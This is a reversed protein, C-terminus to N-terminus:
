RIMIIRDEKRIIEGTVVLWAFVVRRYDWSPIHADWLVHFHVQIVVHVDQVNECPTDQLPWTDMDLVNNHLTQLVLRRQFQTGDELCGNNRTSWQGEAILVAILLLPSHHPSQLARNTNNILNTTFLRIFQLQTKSSFLIM